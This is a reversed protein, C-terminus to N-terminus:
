SGKSGLVGIVRFPLNNINIMKDLPAEPNKGFFREAITSGIIAVNRGTRIDLTNLNRGAALTYGNLEVYNENGGTVRVNPNTKQSGVSIVADQGGGFSLGVTAPYQYGELFTEAQYKSIPVNSNSKKEKLGKRQSKVGDGGFNFWKKSHITFGNVG